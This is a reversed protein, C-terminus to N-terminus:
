GFREGWANEAYGPPMCHGNTILNAATRGSFGQLQWALGTDILQQFLDVVEDFDLEGEEFAILKTLDPHSAQTRKCEKPQNPQHGFHPV